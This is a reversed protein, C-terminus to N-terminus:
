RTSEMARLAQERAREVTAAVLSSQALMEDSFADLLVLCQEPSQRAAARAVGAWIEENPESLLERLLTSLGAEREPRRDTSLTFLAALRVEIDETRDHALTELFTTTQPSRFYALFSVARVRTYRRLSPDAAVAVLGTGDQGAGAAQLTDADPVVDIYSLIELLEAPHGGLAQAPAEGSAVLLGLSATLALAWRARRLHRHDRQDNSASM